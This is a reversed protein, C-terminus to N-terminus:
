SPWMLICVVVRGWVSLFHYMGGRYGGSISHHKGRLFFTVCWWEEHLSHHVGGSEGCLLKCM